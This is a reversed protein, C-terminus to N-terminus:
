GGKPLAKEDSRVIAASTGGLRRIGHSMITKGESAGRLVRQAVVQREM